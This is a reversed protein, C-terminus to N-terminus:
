YYSIFLMLFFFFFFIIYLVQLRLENTKIINRAARGTQSVCPLLVLKFSPVVCPLPNPTPRLAFMTSKIGKESFTSFTYPSTLSLEQKLLDQKCGYLYCLRKAVTQNSVRFTCLVKVFQQQLFVKSTQLCLLIKIHAILSLWFDFIYKKAFHYFNKKNRESAPSIMLKPVLVCLLTENCTPHSYCVWSFLCSRFLSNCGQKLCSHILFHVLVM